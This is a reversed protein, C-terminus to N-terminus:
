DKLEFNHVQRGAKVDVSLGSTKPNNYKAPIKVYVIKPATDANEQSPSMTQKHGAGGDTYPRAQQKAKASDTEISVTMDGIPMDTIAYTGQDDIVASYGPGTEPLFSISGGTVPKGNYTIAGSIKAPANSKSGLCGSALVLCLPVILLTRRNATM